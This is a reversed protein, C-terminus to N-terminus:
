ALPKTIPGTAMYVRLILMRALAQIRQGECYKACKRLSRLARLAPATLVEANPAYHVFIGKTLSGVKALGALTDQVKWRAVRAFYQSPGYFWLDTRTGLAYRTVKVLAGLGYNREHELLMRQGSCGRGFWLQTRTGLAYTSWLMWAWLMIANTNWSCVTVLADMGLGYNQEHGSLM